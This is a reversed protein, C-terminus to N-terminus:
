AAEYAPMGAVIRKCEWFITNEFLQFLETAPVNGESCQYLFEQADKVRAAAMAPTRYLYEHEGTYKQINSENEQYRANVADRNIQGLAAWLRRNFEEPSIGAKRFSESCFTYDNEATPDVLVRYWGGYLHYNGSDRAIIIQNTVMDCCRGLTKTDVMYSSM